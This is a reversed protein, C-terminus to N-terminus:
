RRCSPSTELGTAAAVRQLAARHRASPRIRHRNRQPSRRCWDSSSQRSSRSSSHSPSSECTSVSRARGHFIWGQPFPQRSCSRGWVALTVGFMGGAGAIVLSETLLQRALRGRSAGLASRIALETQRRAAQSLVLNAVNTCTILLLIGVAGFLVLLALRVDKVTASLLPVVGVGWGESYSPHAKALQGAILTLEDHAQDLTVGPALRGVVHLMGGMGARDDPVLRMPIWLEARSESLETTRITFGEPMVGVVTLSEGDLAIAKGVVGPDGAFRRQWLGHSLVIEPEVHSLTAGATFTRGVVAPTGLMAFFNATVQDALVEVPEGHGTLIVRVDQWGAMDRFTRSELRWHHLYAPSLRSGSTPQIVVLRQPEVFRLPRLLVADVITFMSTTAGIGLALTTVAVATFGPTRRLLRWAHGVDQRVARLYGTLTM